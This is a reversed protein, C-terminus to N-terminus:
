RGDVRRDASFNGNVAARRDSRSRDAVPGTRIEGKERKRLSRLSYLSGTGRPASTDTPSSTLGVVNRSRYRDNDGSAPARGSGSVGRDRGM